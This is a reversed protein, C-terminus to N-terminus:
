SSAISALEASHNFFLVRNLITYNITHTGKSIIRTLKAVSVM